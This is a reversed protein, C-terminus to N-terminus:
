RNKLKQITKELDKMQTTLNKVTDKEQIKAELQKYLALIQANLEAIESDETLLKQRLTVLEFQLRRYEKEVDRLSKKGSDEEARLGSLSILLACAVILRARNRTTEKSKKHNM